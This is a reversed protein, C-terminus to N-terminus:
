PIHRFCWLSLTGNRCALKMCNGRCASSLHYLEDEQHAAECAIYLELDRTDDGNYTAGFSLLLRVIETRNDFIAVKLGPNPDDGANLLLLVM